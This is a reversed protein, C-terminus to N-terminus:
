SSKLGRILMRALQEQSFKKVEKTPQNLSYRLWGNIMSVLTAAVEQPNHRLFRKKEIGEEIVLTFQTVVQGQIERLLGKVAKGQGASEEFWLKALNRFEDAKGCYSIILKQLKEEPPLKSRTLINLSDIVGQFAMKLMERYLAAKNKFHYFLLSKTVGVGKALRSMSLGSYSFEPFLCCAADLINEKTHIGKSRSKM